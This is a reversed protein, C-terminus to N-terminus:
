PSPTFRIFTGTKPRDDRRNKRKHRNREAASRTAFQIATHQRVTVVAKQTIRNGKANRIPDPDWDIPNMIRWLPTRSGKGSWQFNSPILPVVRGANDTTSVQIVPPPGVAPAAGPRGAMRELLKIDREVGSGDTVDRAQFRIPIEMEVPDYGTFVNLGTRMPREIVDFKAYGNVIRPAQDGALVHFVDGKRLTGPVRIRKKDKGRRFPKHRLVKTTSRIGNMKAIRRAEDPEGLRAAIKRITDGTKTPVWLYNEYKQDADLEIAFSIQQGLATKPM